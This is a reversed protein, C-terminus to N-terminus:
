PCAAAQNLNNKTAQLDLINITGNVTVDYIFTNASLAQNLRNKIAQLDLINVGANGNVNGQQVVLELNNDGILGPGNNLGRIGNLALKACSNNNFTMNVTM